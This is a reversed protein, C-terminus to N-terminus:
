AAGKGLYVDRVQDNTLIEAVDGEILVAGQHFVTVMKAVRRIFQMDHEIVVLAHRRNLERILGVLRDVEEDTMGATPEDLLILDPEPAIVMALEVLQRQGHALQGVIHHAIPTIGVREMAEDTRQQAIRGPVARVAATWVNDRATLGDFVSPVQTKIGVGRRAIAHSGIGAMPAGRFFIEGGTPHLQGTLCKFFTSKGAGNPGIVCRLEAERLRFSVNDVAVVGGFRMTLAKTELIPIDTV